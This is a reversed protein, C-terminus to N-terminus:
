IATAAGNDASHCLQPGAFLEHEGNQPGYVNGAQSGGYFGGGYGSMGALFGQGFSGCSLLAVSTAVIALFTFLAKIPKM